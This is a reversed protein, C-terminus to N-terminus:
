VHARGIEASTQGGGDLTFWDINLQTRATQALTLAALTIFHKTNM